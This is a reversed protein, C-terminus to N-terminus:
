NQYIRSRISIIGLGLKEVELQLSLNISSSAFIYLYNHVRLIVHPFDLVMQVM